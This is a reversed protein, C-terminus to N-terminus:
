VRDGVTSDVFLNRRRFAPPATRLLLPWLTRLATAFWPRALPAIERTWPPCPLDLQACRTEVMAALYNALWGDDRARNPLTQVLQTLATRPTGALLDHIAALAFSRRSAGAATGVLAAFADQPEPLARQLVLTSVDVGAAMAERRLRAKASPTIRIQLQATKRPM